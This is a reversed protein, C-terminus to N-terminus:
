GRARPGCAPENQDLKQPGIDDGRALVVLAEPFIVPLERCIMGARSSWQITVKKPLPKWNEYDKNIQYTAARTIKKPLSYVPNM